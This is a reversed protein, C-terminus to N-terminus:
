LREKIKFHGNFDCYIAVHKPRVLGDEPLREGTSVRCQVLEYAV